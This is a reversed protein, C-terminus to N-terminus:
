KSPKVTAEVSFPYELILRKCPLDDSLKPSDGVEGVTCAAVHYNGPVADAPLKFGLTDKRNSLTTRSGAKKGNGDFICIRIGHKIPTGKHGDAWFDFRHKEFWDVHLRIEDGAGFVRTARDDGEQPARTLYSATILTPWENPRYPRGDKTGGKKEALPARRVDLLKRMPACADAGSVEAAYLVQNARGRNVLAYEGSIRQYDPGSWGRHNDKANTNSHTFLNRELVPREDIHEDVIHQMWLEVRERPVIGGEDASFVCDESYTPEKKPDFYCRCEKAHTKRFDNDDCRADNHPLRPLRGTTKSLWEKLLAAGKNREGTNVGRNRREGMAIWAATAGLDMRQRFTKCKAEYAARDLAFEPLLPDCPAPYHSTLYRKYWQAGLSGVDIIAADTGRGMVHTQYWLTFLYGDGQVMVVSGPPANEMIERGYSDGIVQRDDIDSVRAGAAPIVPLAAGALLLGPLLKEGLPLRPASLGKAARRRLLYATVGLAVALGAFPLVLAPTAVKAVPVPLRKTTNAYALISLSTLAFILSGAALSLFLRKEPARGHAWRLVADLGVGIFVACAMVAPLFYTQYDGVSYYVGHGLYFLVVLLLLLAPRFARRFAAILGPFVLVVGMALFQREFVDPLKGIRTLYAGIDKVAM